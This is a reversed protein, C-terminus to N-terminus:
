NKLLGLVRLVKSFTNKILGFGFALFGETKSRAYGLTSNVNLHIYEKHREYQLASYTSVLIFIIAGSIATLPALSHHFFGYLGLGTFSGYLLVFHIVYISLTSQGIKLITANRLLSRVLMFVAFVLLVDGLRIFLYNNFHISRFVQIGTVESLYLFADSSFLVLLSGVSVATTIAVPYVYKYDGFRKFLISLFGGFAAYGFWPIITFVSGNINSIYNALFQPLADFTTTAYWPEFTFLLLTASLLVVPFVSKKLHHTLLYIGIIVLISLGICHLVDVLYFSDYIKGTFLGWLNMRLLYGILILQFGRRVGKKIRPNQMGTKDGRILLFTFIFGSVTFFVPATIGRFYSWISYIISDPDRFATALLGDIFHGQLMMLIAWARMADIFYLRSTKKEM